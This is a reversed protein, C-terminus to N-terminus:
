PCYEVDGTQGRWEFHVVDVIKRLTDPHLLSRTCDALWAMHTGPSTRYVHYLIDMDSRRKAVSPSNEEGLTGYGRSDLADLLNQYHSSSAGSIYECMSPNPDKRKTVGHLLEYLKHHSGMIGWNCFGMVVLASVPSSRIAEAALRLCSSICDDLYRCLNGDGPIGRLIVNERVRRMTDSRFDILDNIYCSSEALIEYQERTIQEGGLGISATLVGIYVALDIHRHALTGTMRSGYVGQPRRARSHDRYYGLVQFQIIMAVTNDFQWDSIVGALNCLKLFAMAAAGVDQLLLITEGNGAAECYDAILVNNGSDAIAKALGEDCLTGGCAIAFFYKADALIKIQENTPYLQHFVSLETDVTPSPCRDPAQISGFLLYTDSAPGLCSGPRTQEDANCLALEAVANRLDEATFLHQPNWEDEKDNVLSAMDVMKIVATCGQLVSELTAGPPVPYIGDCTCETKPDYRHKIINTENCSPAVRGGLLIEQADIRYRFSTIIHKINYKLLNGLIKDQFIKAMEDVTMIPGEDHTDDQAPTALWASVWALYADLGVGRDTLMAFNGM